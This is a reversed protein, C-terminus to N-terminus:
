RPAAMSTAACRGPSTGQGRRRHVGRQRRRPHVRVHDRRARRQVVGGPLCRGPWRLGHRHRVTAGRPGRRQLHRPQRLGVGHAGRENAKIAMTTTGDSLFGLPSTVNAARIANRLNDPSLGLANLARLNVDIRVAPTSAGAIDVSAVGPIQRLRQALLTDAVNYLDTSSQTTSNLAIAIVPDDNPDAKQYSPTGLGSPLDALSANIAAQVDQAASDINRDAGFVLFM